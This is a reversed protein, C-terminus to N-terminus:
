INAFASNDDWVDNFVKTIIVPEPKRIVEPEDSVWIDDNFIDFEKVEKAKVVPKVITQTKMTEGKVQKIKKTDAGILANQYDEENQKKNLDSYLSTQNFAYEKSNGVDLIELDTIFGDEVLENFCDKLLENIKKKEKSTLSLNAILDEQKIITRTSFRRNSMTNLLLRTFKSKGVNKFVKVNVNIVYNDHSFLEAYEESLVITYIETKPDYNKREIFHRSYEIAGETYEMSTNFINDISTKIKPKVRYRDTRDVCHYDAIDNLSIFIQRTNEAFMKITLGCLTILDFEDFGVGRVEIDRYGFAKQKKEPKVMQKGVRHIPLLTLTKTIIMNHPSTINVRSRITSNLLMDNNEM